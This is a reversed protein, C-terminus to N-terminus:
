YLSFMFVMNELLMKYTFMLNTDLCMSMFGLGCNLRAVLIYNVQYRINSVIFGLDINIDIQIQKQVKPLHINDYVALTNIPLMIPLQNKDSNTPNDVNNSYNRVSIFNNYM